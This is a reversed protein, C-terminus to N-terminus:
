RQQSSLDAALALTQRSATVFADFEHELAELGQLRAPSKRYIQAQNQPLEVRSAGQPNPM